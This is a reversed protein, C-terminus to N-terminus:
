AWGEVLVALVERGLETLKANAAPSAVLGREHFRKRTYYSPARGRRSDSRYWLLRKRQTKTMSKAFDVHPAFAPTALVIDAAWGTGDNAHDYGRPIVALVRCARVANGVQVEVKAGAVPPVLFHVVSSGKEGGGLWEINYALASM